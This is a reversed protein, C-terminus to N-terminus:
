LNVLVVDELADARPDAHALRRAMVGGMDAEIVLPTAEKDRAVMHKLANRGINRREEEFGILQLIKKIAKVLHAVKVHIQHKRPMAFDEGLESAADILKLRMMEFAQSFHLIEHARPMSVQDGDGRIRM